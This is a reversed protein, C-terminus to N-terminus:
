NERDVITRELKVIRVSNVCMLLERISYFEADLSQGFDDYFTVTVGGDESEKFGQEENEAWEEFVEELSELKDALCYTHPGETKISETIYRKYDDDAVLLIEFTYEFKVNCCDDLNRDTVTPMNSTHGVVRRMLYYEECSYEAFTKRDILNRHKSKLLGQNRLTNFWENDNDEKFFSEIKGDDYIRGVADGLSHGYWEKKTGITGNKSVPINEPIEEILEVIYNYEGM